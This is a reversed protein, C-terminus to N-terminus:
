HTLMSQMMIIVCMCVCMCLYIVLVFCFWVLDFPHSPLTIVQLLTDMHVLSEPCVM